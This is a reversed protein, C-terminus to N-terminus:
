RGQALLQQVDRTLMMPNFPKTIVGLAGAQKLTEIESTMAKATLFIVPISSTATNSKLLKITSLGDMGPMMMDLLIVDPQERQAAAIGEGGSSAEVVDMQGVMGLSMSAISRVDDEDDIILVKL